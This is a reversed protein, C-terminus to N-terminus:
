MKKSFLNYFLAYVYGALAGAVFWIVLGGLIGGATLTYSPVVAFSHMVMGAMRQMMAPNAGVLASCLLSFLSATTGTALAVVQPKLPSM